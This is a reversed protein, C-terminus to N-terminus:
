IPNCYFITIALGSDINEIATFYLITAIFYGLAGLLFLQGFIKPRPWKARPQNTAQKKRSITERVVLMLLTAVSFRALLTGVANAGSDYSFKAFTPALGFGISSIIILAVGLVNPNKRM